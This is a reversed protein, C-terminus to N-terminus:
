VEDSMTNVWMLFLRLFALRIVVFVIYNLALAVDITDVGCGVHSHIFSASEIEFAM